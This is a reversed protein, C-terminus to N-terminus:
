STSDVLVKHLIGVVGAFMVFVGLLILPLDILYTFLTPRPSLLSQQGITAVIWGLLLVGFLVIFQVSTSYKVSEDVTVPSETTQSTESSM